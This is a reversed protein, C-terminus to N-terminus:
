ASFFVTIESYMFVYQATEPSPTLMSGGGWAFRPPTHGGLNKGGRGGLPNAGGGSGQGAGALSLSAGGRGGRSFRQGWNQKNIRFKQWFSFQAGRARVSKRYIHKAMRPTLRTLRHSHVSNQKFPYFIKQGGLIKQGGGLLFDLPAFFNARKGGGLFFFM